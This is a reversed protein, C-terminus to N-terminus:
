VTPVYRFQGLFAMATDEDGGRVVNMAARESETRREDCATSLQYAIRIAEPLTVSPPQIIIRAKEPIELKKVAQMMEEEGVPRFVLHGEEISLPPDPTPDDDGMELASPVAYVKLVRHAVIVYRM